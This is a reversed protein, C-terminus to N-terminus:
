EADDYLRAYRAQQRRGIQRIIVILLVGAIMMCLDALMAARGGVGAASQDNFQGPKTLVAVVTFFSAALWFFWWWGIWRSRPTDLWALPTDVAAPHSARWIEQVIMYPRYLNMMPVFFQFFATAPTHSLGRAMLTRLNGSTQCFWILFVIATPWVILHHFNGAMDSAHEWRQWGLDLEGIPRGRGRFPGDEFFNGRFRPVGLKRQAEALKGHEFELYAQVGFSIVSLALLTTAVYATWVGRLSEPRTLRHDHLPLDDDPEHRIAAARCARQWRLARGAQSSSRSAAASM